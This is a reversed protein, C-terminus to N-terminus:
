KKDKKLLNKFQEVLDFDTKCGIIKLIGALVVIGMAIIIKIEKM